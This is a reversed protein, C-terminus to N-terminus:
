SRDFSIHPDNPLSATTVARRELQAAQATRASARRSTAAVERVASCAQASAQLVRRLQTRRRDLQLDGAGITQEDAEFRRLARGRRLRRDRRPQARLEARGRSVTEPCASVSAHRACSSRTKPSAAPVTTFTATRGVRRRPSARLREAPSTLRLRRSRRERAAGREADSSSRIPRRDPPAGCRDDALEPVVCRSM